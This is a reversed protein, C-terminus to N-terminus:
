NYIICRAMAKKFLLLVEDNYIDVGSVSSIVWTVRVSGCKKNSENIFPFDKWKEIIPEEVISANERWIQTYRLKRGPDLVQIECYISEIPALKCGLGNKGSVIRTGTDEYNSSSM